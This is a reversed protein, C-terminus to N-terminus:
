YNIDTAIAHYVHPYIIIPVAPFMIEDASSVHFILM